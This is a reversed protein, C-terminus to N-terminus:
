IQIQIEVITYFVLFIEGKKEGGDFFGELFEARVNKEVYTTGVGEAFILEAAQAQCFGAQLGAIFTNKLERAAAVDGHGCCQGAAIGAAHFVGDADVGVRNDGGLLDDDL